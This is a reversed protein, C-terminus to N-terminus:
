NRGGWATEALRATEIGFNLLDKLPISSEGCNFNYVGKGPRVCRLSALVLIIIILCNIHRRLSVVILYNKTTRGVLIWAESLNFSSSM